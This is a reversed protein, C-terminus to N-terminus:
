GGLCSYLEVVVVSLKYCLSTIDTSQIRYWLRDRIVNNLKRGDTTALIASYLSPVARNIIFPSSIMSNFTELLVMVGTNV